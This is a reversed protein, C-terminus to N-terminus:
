VYLSKTKDSNANSGSVSQTSQLCAACHEGSYWNATLRPGRTKTWHAATLLLNKSKMNLYPASFAKGLSM